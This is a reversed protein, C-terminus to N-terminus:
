EEEVKKISDLDLRYMPWYGLTAGDRKKFFKTGQKSIWYLKTERLCVKAKYDDPTRRDCGRIIGTHTMKNNTM